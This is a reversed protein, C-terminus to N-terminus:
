LSLFPIKNSVPNDSSFLAMTFRHAPAEHLGQAGYEICTASTAGLIVKTARISM